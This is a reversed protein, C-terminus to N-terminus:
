DIVTFSLLIVEVMDKGYKLKLENYKKYYKETSILALSDNCFKNNKNDNTGWKIFQPLVTDLLWQYSKSNLESLYFHVILIIVYRM